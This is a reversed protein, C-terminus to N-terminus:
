KKYSIIQQRLASDARKSLSAVVNVLTLGWHGWTTTVCRAPLFSVHQRLALLPDNVLAVLQDSCLLLDTEQLLLQKIHLVHM